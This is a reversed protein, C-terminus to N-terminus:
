VSQVLELREIRLSSDMSAVERAAALSGVGRPHRDWSESVLFIAVVVGCLVRCVAMM